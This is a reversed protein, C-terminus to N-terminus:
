DEQNSIVVNNYELLTGKERELASIALNYNVMVNFIARRTAALSRWAGLETTLTAYDKREARAITSNVERQRAELSEYAPALLEYSTDVARVALNVKRIAEELTTKLDAVVRDRQLRARRTSARLGRNGIPLEVRVGVDYSIFNGGTVDDFSLDANAGLGQATVTFSLNVLPQESNEAVGVDIRTNALELEKAAIDPRNDLAAQAEALPDVIIRELHPSDDPILEINDALSIKPDNLLAILEDEADFVASRDAVFNTRIETLQAETTHLNVPSMDFDQRAVVYERIAEFDAVERARIVLNRRAQVLSWYRQEVAQLIAEVNDRFAFDSIRRNNKAILIGSRNLELGFGRLLPQEFALSFRSTYAPNLTQFAFSQKVRSLEYKGEVRTGAPLLKRIGAEVTLFDAGTSFLTSATPQDVKRNLVGGFLLADFRAQEEVIRATAIAPDYSFTQIAYNNALARRIAEELTLHVQQPRRISDIQALLADCKVEAGPGTWRKADELVTEKASEPAPLHWLLRDAPIVAEAVPVAGSAENGEQAQLPVTAAVRVGATEVGDPSGAAASAVWPGINILLLLAFTGILRYSTMM